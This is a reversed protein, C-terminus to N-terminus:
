KTSDKRYVSFRHIFYGFATVAIFIALTDGPGTNALAQNSTSSSSNSSSKTQSSKNSAKSKSGTAPSTINKAPTSCSKGNSCSNNHDSSLTLGAVSIIAIVVLVIAYIQNSSPRKNGPPTTLENPGM